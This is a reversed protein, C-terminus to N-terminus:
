RPAVEASLIREVRFTRQEQRLHCYAIYYTDSEHRTSYLPTVRRRTIEKEGYYRIILDERNSLGQALLDPLDIAIVPPTYIPEGQAFLLDGVTKFKYKKELEIAMRKFVHWTLLVDSLARHTQGVRIGLSHAIYALNNRGFSFYQRALKFTCLWPNPLPLSDVQLNPNILQYEQGVFGADFVANHAILLAGDIFESLAPAIDRFKPSDIVDQDYIHNIKSARKEIPREPNLLTQFEGVKKGGELRVAGLEIVRHGLAPYLGTTETDLYVVPIEQLSKEDFDFITQM